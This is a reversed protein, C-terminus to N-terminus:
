AADLVNLKVTITGVFRSEASGSNTRAFSYTYKRAELSLTEAKTLTLRIVGNTSPAQVVGAKTLVPPDADTDHQRLTFQATWGNVDQPQGDSDVFLFDTVDDDGRRIEYNVVTAAM